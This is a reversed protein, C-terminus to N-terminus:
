QDDGEPETDPGHDDDAWRCRDDCYVRRQKETLEVGCYSCTDRAPDVPKVPTRPRIRPARLAVAAAVVGLLLVVALVMLAAIRLLSM